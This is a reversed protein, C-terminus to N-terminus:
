PFHQLRHSLRFCLVSGLEVLRREEGPDFSVLLLRLQLARLAGSRANRLRLESGLDALLGVGELLLLGHLPDAKNSRLLAVERLLSDVRAAHSVVRLRLLNRNREHVALGDDVLELLAPGVQLHPLEKTKLRANKGGARM